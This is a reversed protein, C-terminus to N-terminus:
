DFFKALRNEFLNVYSGQSSIWNTKLCDTVYELENGALSPEMVVVNHPRTLTAFDVIKKNDDVLPVVRISNNTINRVNIDSAGIHEYIVNQNCLPGVSLNNSAGNILARRIDGDTMSGFLNGDQIVFVIGLGNSSIKKLACLLTDESKICLDDLKIM